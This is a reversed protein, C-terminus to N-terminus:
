LIYVRTCKFYGDHNQRYGPFNTGEKLLANGPFSKMVYAVGTVRIKDIPFHPKIDGKRRERKICLFAETQRM